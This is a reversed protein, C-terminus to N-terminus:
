PSASNQSEPPFTRRIKMSHTVGGRIGQDSYIDWDLILVGGGPAFPRRHVGKRPRPILSEADRKVWDSYSTPPVSVKDVPESEGENRHHSPIGLMVCIPEPIPSIRATKCLVDSGSGSSAKFAEKAGEPCCRKTNDPRLVDRHDGGLRLAWSNVDFLSELCDVPSEPDEKDASSKTGTNHYTSIEIESRM